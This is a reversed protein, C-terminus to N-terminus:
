VARRCGFLGFFGRTV